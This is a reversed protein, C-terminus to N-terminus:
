QQHLRAEAAETGSLEAKASEVLLQGGEKALDEARKLAERQYKELEQAVAEGSRATLLDIYAEAAQLLQENDVKSLEGQQQWRKREADIRHFTAERVDFATHIDVGPWLAGFSSRTITGNENQIGGE